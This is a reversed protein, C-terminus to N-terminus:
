LMEERQQEARSAGIATEVQKVEEPPPLVAPMGLSQIWLERCWGQTHFLHHDEEQEVEDYAAKLVKALKGSAAEACQGLLEWNLHDKTEGLVVCECAVLEAAAGPATKQAMQMAKVLSEGHHRVVDRGPSPAEPDVGLDQCVGEIVKQHHRTQELYEQWEKKLDPNVACTIAHTYLQEGGRETEVMQLLLETLQPNSPKSMTVPEKSPPTFPGSRHARHRRPQRALGPIRSFDM